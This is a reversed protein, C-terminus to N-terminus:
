RHLLFSILFITNHLPFFAPFFSSVSCRQIVQGPDEHSQLPDAASMIDGQPDLSKVCALCLTVIGRYYNLKLFKEIFSGLDVDAAIPILDDIIGDLVEESSSASYNYSNNLNSELQALKIFARHQKLYSQNFYSPCHKSLIECIGEINKDNDTQNILSNIISSTIPVCDGCVLQQYTTNSILQQKDLPIQLNPIKSKDSIISSFIIAEITRIILSYLNKLSKEESKRANEDQLRKSPNANSDQFSPSTANPKRRGPTTPTSSNSSFVVTQYPTNLISNKFFEQLRILLQLIEDLESTDVITYFECPPIAQFNLQGSGGLAGFSTKLKFVKENWIPSLIRSLFLYISCYKDSHSLIFTNAINGYSEERRSRKEYKATGGFHFFLSKAFEFTFSSPRPGEMPILYSSKNKTNASHISKHSYECIILLCMACGETKGYRDFFDVIEQPIQQQITSYNQLLQLFEDIARRKVLLYLCKRTVIYFQEAAQIHQTALECRRRKFEKKTMQETQLDNTNRIAWVYEGGISILTSLETNIDYNAKKYGGINNRSKKQPINNENVLSKDSYSTCVILCEDKDEIKEALLTIGRYTYLSHIYDYSAHMMRIDKEDKRPPYDLGVVSLSAPGFDRYKIDENM